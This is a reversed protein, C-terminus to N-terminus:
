KFSLFGKVSHDTNNNNSKNNGAGPNLLGTYVDEWKSLVGNPANSISCDDLVVEM